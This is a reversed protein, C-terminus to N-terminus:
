EKILYTVCIMGTDGDNSRKGKKANRLLGVEALSKAEM